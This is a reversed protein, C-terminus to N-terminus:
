RSVVVKGTFIEKESRVRVFYIGADWESVDITIQPKLDSTQPHTYVQQGLVDYVEVSKVGFESTNVILKSTAPNPSLLNPFEQKDATLIETAFNFCLTSDIGGSGVITSPIGAVAGSILTMPPFVANATVSTTIDNHSIENCGSNGNADTKIVYGGEGIVVYGGDMTQAVMRGTCLGSDGFSKTWQLNGYYDTKALYVYHPGIPSLYKYGTIIYGADSTQEVYSAAETRNTGYTKIWLTVGNSDTKILFADYDGSGLGTRGTMIYGGDNTQKIDPYWFNIDGMSMFDKVWLINGISDTKIISAGPARVASFIYGGDTTQHASNGWSFPIDSYTIAWELNGSYDTKVLYPEYNGAVPLYKYGGIIYGGDNTQEVSFGEERDVSGFTRSWLLNGSGDSKILYVDYDGAGFSNTSGVVIYGGDNTQEVYFGAENGTGGFHRTWTTDGNSDTKILSVDGYYLPVPYYGAIIFGGEVTQKIANGGQYVKQFLVQGGAHLCGVSFILCFFKKM